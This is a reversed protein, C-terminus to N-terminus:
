RSDGGRALQRTVAERRQRPINAKASYAGYLYRGNWWIARLSRPSFNEAFVRSSHTAGLLCTAVMAVALARGVSSRKGLETLLCALAFSAFSVPFFLLDDRRLTLWPTCALIASVLWLAVPTWAISRRQAIALGISASVLLWWLPILARSWGDFPVVGLPSLTKWVGEIWGGFDLGFSQARPVVLGRYLYLALSLAVLTGLYGVWLRRTPSEPSAALGLLVLAPIAAFTDERTVLGLGLSAVSLALLLASRRDLGKLLLTAAVAFSLGQVLHNGDTLWVYHFVSYMSCMSLAVALAAVKKSLGFRAAIPFSSRM